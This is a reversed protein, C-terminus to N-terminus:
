TAKLNNEPFEIKVVTGKGVESEISLAAGHARVIECVLALGLGSGGKKKNRSPDIMYFPETVRAIENKPIGKGSDCVEITRGYAKLVVTRGADSAKSANDVLNILASRILDADVMLTDTECEIKLPTMREQMTKAMSEVVDDFLESVNTECPRIDEKLTILRLLKQTMHELWRCQNHIHRLSIETQRRDVKANLLTDSHILMTALPTKLEHTVGGIFLRQRQATETLEAIHTEVADAMANFDAALSGIEDHSAIEARRAYEGGSIRKTTESLVHLPKTAKRVLLIILIAGALTGTACIAIFRWAMRTIDNYISSVDEVVYIMAEKDNAVTSSGVILIHRGDTEGLYTQQEHGTVPLITEPLLNINSYVTEGDMIFVSTNDAFQSFCYVALSYETVPSDDEDGYYSFMQSFSTELTRQKEAAQKVTLNLVGNKSQILLLTCCVTVIGILVCICVLSIKQWLKM